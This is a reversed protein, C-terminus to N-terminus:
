YVLMQIYLINKETGYEFFIINFSVCGGMNCM